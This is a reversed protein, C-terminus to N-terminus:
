SGGSALNDSLLFNPILPSPSMSTDPWPTACGGSPCKGEQSGGMGMRLGAHGLGVRVQPIAASQPASGTPYPSPLATDGASPGFENGAM